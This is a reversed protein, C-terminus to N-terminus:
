KKWESVIRVDDHNIKAREFIRTAHCNRCIQIIKQYKNKIHNPYSANLLFTDEHGCHKMTEDIHRRYARQYEKRAEEETKVRTRADTEVARLQALVESIDMGQLSAPNVVRRNRDARRFLESGTMDRRQRERIMLGEDETAKLKAWQEPFVEKFFSRAFKNAEDQKMLGIAHAFEHLFTIVSLRGELCIVDNRMSYHSNGSGYWNKVNDDIDFELRLNPKNYIEKLKNFLWTYKDKRESVSGSWAGMSRFEKLTELTAKIKEKDQEMDFM